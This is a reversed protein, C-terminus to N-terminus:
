VFGAFELQRVIRFLEACSAESPFREVVRHHVFQRHTVEALKRFVDMDLQQQSAFCKLASVKAALLEENGMFIMTPEFDVSYPSRFYSLNAAERLAVATVEAATAVHDLHQDAPHH